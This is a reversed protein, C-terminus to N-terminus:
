ALEHQLRAIWAGCGPELEKVREAAAELLEYLLDDRDGALACLVAPLAGPALRHGEEVAVRAVAALTAPASSHDGGLMAHLAVEFTRRDADYLLQRLTTHAQPQDCHVLRAAALERYPHRGARALYILDPIDKPSPPEEAPEMLLPRLAQPKGQDIWVAEALHAAAEDYHARAAHLLGAAVRNGKRSVNGSGWLTVLHDLTELEADIAEAARRLRLTYSDRSAGARDRVWQAGLARLNRWLHARAASAKETIAGPWAGRTLAIAWLEYAASGSARWAPLPLRLCGGPIPPRHAEAVWQLIARHTRQRSTGQPGPSRRVAFVARNRLQEVTLTEETPAHSISATVSRLSGGECVEVLIGEADASFWAVAGLRRIASEIRRRLDSPRTGEGGLPVTRWVPGDAVNKRHATIDSLDACLCDPACFAAHACAGAMAAWTALPLRATSESICAALASIGTFASITHGTSM